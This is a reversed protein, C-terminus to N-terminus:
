SLTFECTGNDMMFTILHYTAEMLRRKATLIIEDLVADQDNEIMKDYKFTAYRETRAINRLGRVSSAIRITNQATDHCQYLFYHVLWRDGESARFFYAITLITQYIRDFNREHLANEAEMLYGVLIPLQKKRDKLLTQNWVSSTPGAKERQEIQIRNLKTLEM